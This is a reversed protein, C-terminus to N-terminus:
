PYSLSYVTSNPKDDRRAEVYVYCHCPVAFRTERGKGVERKEAVVHGLLVGVVDEVNGANTGRIERKVGAKSSGGLYRWGSSSSRRFGVRTGDDAAPFGTDPPAASEDAAVEVFPLVAASSSFATVRTEEDLFSAATLRRSSNAYRRSGSRSAQAELAPSSM